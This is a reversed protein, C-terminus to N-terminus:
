TNQTPLKDGRGRERVLWGGRLQFLEIHLKYKVDNVDLVGSGAGRRGRIVISVRENFKAKSIVRLM